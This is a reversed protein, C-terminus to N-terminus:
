LYHMMIKVSIERALISSFREILADSTTSNSAINGFVTRLQVGNVASYTQGGGASAMNALLQAASNGQAIGYGFGVTHCIFNHNQSYKQKFQRILTLPDDGGGGGDSMFIMVISSATRDVAIAKEAEKLGESYVTGGGRLSPLNRPTTALRQQRCVTRATSDFLVVTFHDDVGQDDNRRTLFELYANQLSSWENFMGGSEELVFIFHFSQTEQQKEDFLQITTFEKGTEDKKANYCRTFTKEMAATAKPKIRCFM